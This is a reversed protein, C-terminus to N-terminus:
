KMDHENLWAQVTQWKDGQQTPSVRFKLLDPREKELWLYFDWKEEYTPPSSKPQWKRWEKLIADQSIKQNAM